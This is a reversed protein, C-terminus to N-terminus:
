KDREGVQGASSNGPMASDPPVDSDPCNCAQKARLVDSALPFWENYDICPLSCIALKGAATLRVAAGPKLSPIIAPYHSDNWVNNPNVPEILGKGILHECIRRRIRNVPRLKGTQNLACTVLELVEDRKLDASM